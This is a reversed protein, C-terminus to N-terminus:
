SADRKRFLLTMADDAQYSADLHFQEGLAKKAAELVEAQGDWAGQLEVLDENSRSVSVAAQTINELQTQASQLLSYDNVSYLVVRLLMAILFFNKM